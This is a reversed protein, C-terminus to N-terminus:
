NQPPNPRQRALERLIDKMSDVDTEVRDQRHAISSLAEFVINNNHRQEELLIHMSQLRSDMSALTAEIGSFRADVGAFRGDIGSLRADIESFRVNMESFREDVHSFRADMRHELARIDGKLEDRVHRLMGRTAPLEDQNPPHSLIDNAM